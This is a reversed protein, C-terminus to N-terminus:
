IQESIYMNTYTNLQLAHHRKWWSMVPHLSVMKKFKFIKSTRVVGVMECKPLISLSDEVAIDNEFSM